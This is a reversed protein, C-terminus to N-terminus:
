YCKNRYKRLIKLEDKEKTYGCYVCEYIEDYTVRVGPVYQQSTRIVKGTEDRTEIEELIAIDEKSIIEEEIKTLANIKKCSPCTRM